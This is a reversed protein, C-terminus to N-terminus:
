NGLCCKSLENRIPSELPCHVHREVHTQRHRKEGLDMLWTNANLHEAITNVAKCYPKLNARSVGYEQSNNSAQESNAEEAQHQPTDSKKM